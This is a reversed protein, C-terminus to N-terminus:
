VEKDEETRVPYDRAKRLWHLALEKNKLQLLTKGLYLLNKSYFNPDALRTLTRLLTVEEFTASPPSAFLAAAIKTQYWPLEAFGYCWLGM